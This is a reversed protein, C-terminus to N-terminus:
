GGIEAAVGLDDIRGCDGFCSGSVPLYCEEVSLWGYQDAHRDGGYRLGPSLEAWSGSERVSVSHSRRSRRVM